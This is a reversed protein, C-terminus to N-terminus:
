VPKWVNVLKILHMPILTQAGEVGDFLIYNPYLRIKSGEPIEGFDIGAGDVLLIQYQSYTPVSETTM